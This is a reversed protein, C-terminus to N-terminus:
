HRAPRIVAIQWLTTGSWLAPVVCCLVRCLSLCFLVLTLLLEFVPIVSVCSSNFLHCYRCCAASDLCWPGTNPVFTSTQLPPRPSTAGQLSPPPPPLCLTGKSHRFATLRIDALVQDLVAMAWFCISGAHASIRWGDLYIPQSCLSERTSFSIFVPDFYDCEMWFIVM